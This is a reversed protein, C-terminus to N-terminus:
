LLAIEQVPITGECFDICALGVLVAVLLKKKNTCSNKTTMMTVQLTKLSFSSERAYSSRTAGSCLAILIVRDEGHEINTYIPDFNTSWCCFVENKRGGLLKTLIQTTANKASQRLVTRVVKKLLLGRSLTL